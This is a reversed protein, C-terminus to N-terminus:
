PLPLSPLLSHSLSLCLCLCLSLSLSLARARALLLLLLLVPWPRPVRSRACIIPQICNGGFVPKPLPLDPLACKGTANGALRV